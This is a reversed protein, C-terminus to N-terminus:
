NTHRQNSSMTYVSIYNAPCASGVDILCLHFGRWSDQLIMCSVCRLNNEPRLTPTQIVQEKAQLNASFSAVSLSPPPSLAATRGCLKNMLVDWWPPHTRSLLPRQHIDSRGPVSLRKGRVLSPTMMVRLLFYGILLNIVSFSSSLM